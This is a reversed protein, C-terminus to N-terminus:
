NLNGTLYLGLMLLTFLGTVSLGITAGLTDASIGFSSRYPDIGAPLMADQRRASMTEGELPPGGGAVLRVPSGCTHGDICFFTNPAPASDHEAM